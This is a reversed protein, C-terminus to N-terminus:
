PASHQHTSRAPQQAPSLCFPGAPERRVGAPCVLAEHPAAPVAGSQWDLSHIATAAQQALYARAGRASHTAGGKLAWSLDPAPSEAAFARESAAATHVVTALMVAVPAGVRFSM